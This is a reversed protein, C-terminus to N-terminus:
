GRGVVHCITPSKRHHCGVRAMRSTSLSRRFAGHYGGTHTNETDCKEQREKRTRNRAQRKHRMVNRNYVVNKHNRYLFVFHELLWLFTTSHPTPVFHGLRVSGSGGGPPSAYVIRNHSTFFTVFRGGHIAPTDRKRNDKKKKM